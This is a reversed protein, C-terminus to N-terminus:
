HETDVTNVMIVRSESLNNLKLEVNQQENM